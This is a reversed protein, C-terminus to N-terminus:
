TGLWYTAKILFINQVEERFIAGFDRGFNFDGFEEFGDRQQQWVFFLTSGPRYEWRVVASGRLSRFNFNPDDFTFLEGGDGPDVFFEGDGGAIAGKDVGYVDFEYTGPAAFEKYGSYRGATVFPQAYLQLTLDPTFTWNARLGVSFSTQEIDGFVYRTGFTTAAVEDDVSTIYQDTDLQKSFEPNVQLELASSPRITLSVGVNADYEPNEVFETRLYSYADGSIAKRSDSYIWPNVGIDAPRKANPGGRTLRDNYVEVPSGGIYLGGGWLNSFQLNSNFNIQRNIVQGAGNYAVNWNVNGGWRRLWDAGPENQNYLVIGSLAYADARSQFGLDNVEFGPSVLNATLSGRWKGSTRAVAVEGYAGSLSKRTPDVSLYDADPRDFHRQPARQLDEIVEASGNVYSGVLTGNVAWSRNGWSHEVDFGGVYASNPVVDDFVSMGMSRNTATFLGGVVTNGGRFDRKIRGVAYNTLPEVAESHQTGDATFIQAQEELTVADLVGVSWPGVKGSLKAASAITTQDPRDVYEIDDGDLGRQPRRGIRRSYFFTPRFSSTYAKTRGFEFIDVGEVFFPRREQFFIEFASLNVVAPDAEVQGFDPNITASLTLNSTLGYKLDAGVSGAIDNPSYFPDAADGPERTLRSAVYPQVELRRPASLGEMGGLKGFRSVVGDVDPLIPAWFSKEDNRAIDRQFEIGWTQVNQESNFRLQSLPIRFEATWGDAAPAVAVDWVADWSFDENTDNYILFDYKVGAANVGFTFATRGDGYSDISVVVKDSLNWDDRRALRRVIAEPEADHCRFGVYLADDDYLVYAETRQTAPEGPNPRMQTFGTAVEATAWAAEDLSGDLAVSTVPDIRVARVQPEPPPDDDADPASAAVPALFVLAILLLCCRM